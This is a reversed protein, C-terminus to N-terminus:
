EFYWEYFNHSTFIGPDVGRVNAQFGTNSQPFYLFDAPQDESIIRSLESFIKEKSSRELAEASHAKKFLADVVESIYGCSNLGGESAYFVESGSPQLLDTGHAYLMLDWSEESVADLGSNFRLPEDSGPVKNM